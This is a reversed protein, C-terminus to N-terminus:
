VNAAFATSQSSTVIYVGFFFKLAGLRGQSPTHEVAFEIGIFAGQPGEPEGPGHWDSEMAGVMM